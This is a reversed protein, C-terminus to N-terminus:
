LRGSGGNGGWSRGSISCDTFGIRGNRCDPGPKGKIKGPRVIGSSSDTFAKFIKISGTPQTETEDNEGFHIM